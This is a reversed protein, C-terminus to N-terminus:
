DGGVTCKVCRLEGKRRYKKYYDPITNWRNNLSAISAQRTYAATFWLTIWVGNGGTQIVWGDDVKSPM